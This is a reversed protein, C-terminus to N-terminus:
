PTTDVNSAPIFVWLENANGQHPGVVVASTSSDMVVWSVAGGGTGAYNYIAQTTGSNYPVLFFLDWPVPGGGCSTYQVLQQHPLEFRLAPM